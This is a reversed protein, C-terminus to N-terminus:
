VVGVETTSPLCCRGIAHTKNPKEGGMMVEVKEVVWFLIVAMAVIALVVVGVPLGFLEPLTFRGIYSSNWFDSL